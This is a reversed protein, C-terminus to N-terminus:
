DQMEGHFETGLTYSPKPSLSGIRRGRVEEIAKRAASKVEPEGDQLARELAEVADRGGIRGLAEAASIRIICAHSRIMAEVNDLSRPHSQKALELAAEHSLGNYSGLIDVLYPVTICGLSVLSELASNRTDEDIDKLAEVVPEPSELVRVKGLALVAAKRVWAYKDKTARVLYREARPDGIEGLRDAAKARNGSNEGNLYLVSRLIRETIKSTNQFLVEQPNLKSRKIRFEAEGGLNLCDLFRELNSSSDQKQSPSTLFLFGYYTSAFEEETPREQCVERVEAERADVIDTVLGAAESEKLKDVDLFFTNRRRIQCELYRVLARRGSEVADQSCVYEVSKLVELPSVDIGRLDQMEFAELVALLAVGPSISHVSKTAFQLYEELIATHGEIISTRILEGLMKINGDSIALDLAHGNFGVNSETM